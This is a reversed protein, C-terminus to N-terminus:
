WGRADVPGAAGLTGSGVACVCTPAAKVRCRRSAAEEGSPEHPENSLPQPMNLSTLVSPMSTGGSHQARRVQAQVRAHVDLAAGLRRQLPDRRRVLRVRRRARTREGRRAKTSPHTWKKPQSSPRTGKGKKRGSRTRRRGKALRRPGRGLDRILAVPSRTGSEPYKMWAVAVGNKSTSLRTTKPDFRHVCRGINLASKMKPGAKAKKKKKSRRKKARGARAESLDVRERKWPARLIKFWVCLRLSASRARDDRPLIPRTDCGRRAVDDPGQPRSPRTRRRPGAAARVNRRRSHRLQRMDAVSVEPVTARPVQQHLRDDGRWSDEDREGTRLHYEDNIICRSRGSRLQDESPEYISAATGLLSCRDIRDDFSQAGCM